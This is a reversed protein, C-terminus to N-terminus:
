WELGLVVEEFDFGFRVPFVHLLHVVAGALLGVAVDAELVVDDSGLDGEAPVDVAEVADERV